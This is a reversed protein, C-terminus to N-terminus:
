VLLALALALALTALSPHIFLSNNLLLLLLLLAALRLLAVGLHFAARRMGDQPDYNQADVVLVQQGHPLQVVVEAYPARSPSPPTRCIVYRSMVPISPIQTNQPSFRPFQIEEFSPFISAQTAKM